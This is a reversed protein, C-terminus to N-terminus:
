SGPDTGFVVVGAPIRPVFMTRGLLGLDRGMLEVNVAEVRQPGGDSVRLSESNTIFAQTLGPVYFVEIGGPLVVSTANIAASGDANSPGVTAFIRRGEGDVMALIAIWQAKTVALITAPMASGEQVEIAQTAVATIFAAYTNTALATGTYVVGTIGGAEVNAVASAETAIAYQGLLDNWVMEVVPLESSLILELAIDVAGDVWAADFAATTVIMKRSNAPLKQGARAAVETHQTVVPIKAHGSRPMPFSGLRSFLPRRADLVNVLQSAIYDEVVLGSADVAPVPAPFVGTVDELARTQFEAWEEELAERQQYRGALGNIQAVFWDLPRPGGRPLHIPPADVVSQLRELSAAMSDLRTEIPSLDVAAREEIVPEVIPETTPTEM